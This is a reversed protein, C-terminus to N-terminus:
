CICSVRAKTLYTTGYNKAGCEDYSQKVWPFSVIITTWHSIAWDKPPDVDQMTEAKFKVGPWLLHIDPWIAFPLKAIELGLEAVDSVIQRLQGRTALTSGGLPSIETLLM